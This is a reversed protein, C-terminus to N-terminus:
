KMSRTSWNKLLNMTGYQIWARQLCYFFCKPWQIWQWKPALTNQLKRPPLKWKSSKEKIDHWVFRLSNILVREPSSVCPLSLRLYGCFNRARENSHRTGFNVCSPFYRKIDHLVVSAHKNSIPTMHFLARQLRIKSTKGFKPHHSISKM